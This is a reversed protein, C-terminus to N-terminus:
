NAIQILKINVNIKAKNNENQTAQTDQSNTM